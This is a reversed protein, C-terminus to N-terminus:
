IITEPSPKYIIVLHIIVELHDFNPAAKLSKVLQHIDQRTSGAPLSAYNAGGYYNRLESASRTVNSRTASFSSDSVGPTALALKHIDASSPALPLDPFDGSSPLKYSM